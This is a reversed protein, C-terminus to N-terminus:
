RTGWRRALMLLLPVIAAWGLALATETAVPRNLTCAGLREAGAYSLPGGLAGLLAALPWRGHLWRLPERLAIAFLAWLALIWAPAFMPLPGPAAYTIWGFQLMATDWVGGVAVAVGVLAADVAPKDSRAVFTAVVAATVAVGVGPWGHAAGLVCAFWAGELAVLTAVLRWARSPRPAGASVPLATM